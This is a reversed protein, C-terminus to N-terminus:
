AVAVAPRQSPTGQPRAVFRKAVGRLPVDVFKTLAVSVLLCVPLHLFVIAWHEGIGRPLVAQLVKLLPVQMTYAGYTYEAVFTLPWWSAAMGLFGSRIAGGGESGKGQTAFTYGILALCFWPTLFYNGHAARGFEGRIGLSTPAVPFLYVLVLTTVMAADAALGWFKWGQVNAPLVTSLHFVLIGAEFELLRLGPFAFLDLGVGHVPLWAQFYSPLTHLACVAFLTSLTGKWGMYNRLNYLLPFLLSCFMLSSVFWGPTNAAFHVYNSWPYKSPGCVKMPVWSQVLAMQLPWAMYPTQEVLGAAALIVLIWLAVWYLPVLRVLRLAINEASSAATFSRVRSSQLSSVFGSLIFFFPLLWIANCVLLCKYHGLDQLANNAIIFFIFVTRYGDLMPVHPKHLQAASPLMADTEGDSPTRNGRRAWVAAILWLAAVFLCAFFSWAVAQGWSYVLNPLCHSSIVPVSNLGSDSLQVHWPPIRRSDPSGFLFADSLSAM